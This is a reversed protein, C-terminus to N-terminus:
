NEQKKNELDDIKAYKECSKTIFDNIEDLKTLLDNLKEQNKALEKDLIKKKKIINIRGLDEETKIKFFELASVSVDRLMVAYAKQDEVISYFREFTNFANIITNSLSALYYEKGLTKVYENYILGLTNRNDLFEHMLANVDIEKEEM